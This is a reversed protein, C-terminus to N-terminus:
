PSIHNIWINRTAIHSHTVLDAIRQGPPLPRNFPYGWEHSTAADEGGVAEREAHTIIVMFRFLLGERRGRPLLLNLPWGREHVVSSRSAPRHIVAQESPKLTHVFHDLEMWMRRDEAYADAAVLLRVLVKQERPLLNEVRLFYHFADHDLRVPHQAMHTRLTHTSARFAPPPSTWADGGFTAEGWKQGDFDPADAGPIDQHFCLLIDPSQHAPALGDGLWKRVLVQPADASVDHPPLHTSQWADIIDDVHRRWRFFLPDRAATAPSAMVGPLGSRDRPGTLCALLVHGLNHHSGYHGLPDAWAEGDVSGLNSEATDALQELSELLIPTGGHWLLGSSAATFLRDRRMAHDDIGYGPIGKPSLGPPRPAFGPLGADYGENIPSAYDELPVTRPMGFALRETDYRALLQQHVYWFLEGRREQLLRRQPQTPDPYGAAPHKVHWTDVHDNLGTDERFYDLWVEAGPTGPNGKRALEPRKSPVVLHPAREVLPPVSLARGEPHHALFVRLAYKTEEPDGHRAQQEAEDLVAALGAEGPRANALEMFRATVSLARQQHSPLFPLFRHTPSPPELPALEGRATLPLPAAPSERCLLARVRTNLEALNM